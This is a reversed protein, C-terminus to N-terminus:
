QNARSCLLLACGLQVSVLKKIPIVQYHLQHELDKAEESFAKEM